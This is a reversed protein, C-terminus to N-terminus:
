LHKLYLVICGLLVFGEFNALHYEHRVLLRRFNGLWAFFREVPWRQDLYVKIRENYAAARKWHEGHRAYLTIGREALEETLRRTGYLADGVLYVPLRGGIWQSLVPLALKAEHAQASSVFVALPLSAHNTIAM